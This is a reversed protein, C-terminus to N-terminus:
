KQCMCKQTKLKDMDSDLREITNKMKLAEDNTLGDNCKEATLMAFLGVFM